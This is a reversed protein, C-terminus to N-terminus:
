VPQHCSRNWRIARRRVLEREADYDAKLRDYYALLTELDIDGPDQREARARIRDLIKM